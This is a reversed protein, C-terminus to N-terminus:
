ANSRANFTFAQCEANDLCIKQCADITTDFVAQLDAGYYDVDRTIVLRREPIASDAAAPGGATLVLGLALLFRRM